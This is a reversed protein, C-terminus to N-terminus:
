SPHHHNLPSILRHLAQFSLIVLLTWDPLFSISIVTKIRGYPPLIRDVVYTVWTILVMLAVIFEFSQFVLIHSMYQRVIPFSPNEFLSLPLLLGYVSFIIITIIFFTYLLLAVCRYIVYIFLSVFKNKCQPYFVVHSIFKSFVDVTVFDM